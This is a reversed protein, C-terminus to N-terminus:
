KYQNQIKLQEIQKKAVYKSIVDIDNINTNIFEFAYQIIYNVQETRVLRVSLNLVKGTDLFLIIKYSIIENTNLTNNRTDFVSQLKYVLVGGASLDITDLIYVLHQENEDTAILVGKTNLNVRYFKRQKIANIKAPSSITLFVHKDVRKVATIKTIASYVVKEIAFKITIDQQQNVKFDRDYEFFLTFSEDNVFKITGTIDHWIRNTDMYTIEVREVNTFEKSNFIVEAM